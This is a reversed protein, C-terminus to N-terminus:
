RKVLLWVGVLILFGAFGRRLVSEDLTLALKSGFLGGILFGSAVIGGIKFDTAGRKTYEILALVGVPALLAVLSTGQARLQSFGLCLMLAPVILIGGGIGFVGGLVGAVLGIITGALVEMM